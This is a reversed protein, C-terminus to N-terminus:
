FHECRWFVSHVHVSPSRSTVSSSNKSSCDYRYRSYKYNRRYKHLEIIEKVIALGLGSGKLSGTRAQDARYFRDFAHKVEVPSMGVGEDQINLMMYEPTSTVQIEISSGPESYKIANTLLNEWVTQLLVANGRVKISESQVSIGIGKEVFAYRLHSLTEHVQQDVFVEEIPDM